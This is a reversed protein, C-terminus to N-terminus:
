RERRSKYVHNNFIEAVYHPSSTHTPHTLSYLCAVFERYGVVLFIMVLFPAPKGIQEGGEKGGDINKGIQFRGGGRDFNVM